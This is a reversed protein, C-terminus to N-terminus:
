KKAAKKETPVSGQLSAAKQGNGNSPVTHLEKLWDIQKIMEIERLFDLMQIMENEAAPKSKTAALAPQCLLQTFILTLATGNPTM